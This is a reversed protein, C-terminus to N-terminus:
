LAYYHNKVAAELINEVVKFHPQLLPLHLGIVWPHTGWMSDQFVFAVELSM